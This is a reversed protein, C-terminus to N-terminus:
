VRCASQGAGGFLLVASAGPDVLLLELTQGCVGASRGRPVSLRFAVVWEQSVCEIGAVAPVWDLGM